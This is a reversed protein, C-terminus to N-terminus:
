ERTQAPSPPVLSMLVTVTVTVCGVVGAGVSVNVVAVGIIIAPWDALRLQLVVFALLQRAVPPHLPVLVVLPVAVTVGVVVVVYESAQEPFPPVLSVRVTVM